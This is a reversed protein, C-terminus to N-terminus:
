NLELDTHEQIHNHLPQIMLIQGLIGDRQSLLLMLVAELDLVWLPYTPYYYHDLNAISSVIKHFIHM